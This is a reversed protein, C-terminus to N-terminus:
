KLLYIKDIIEEPKVFELTNKTINYLINYDM